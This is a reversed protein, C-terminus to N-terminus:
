ASFARGSGGIAKRADRLRDAMIRRMIWMVPRPEGSKQAAVQYTNRFAGDPQLAKLIQDGAETGPHARVMKRTIAKAVQDGRAAQKILRSLQLQQSANM